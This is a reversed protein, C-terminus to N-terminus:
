NVKPKQTKKEKTKQKWQKGTLSLLFIPKRKLNQRQSVFQWKNSTLVSRKKDIIMISKPSFSAMNESINAETPLETLLINHVGLRILSAPCIHVRVNYVGIFPHYKCIKTKHGRKGDSYLNFSDSSIQTPSCLWTQWTQLKLTHM